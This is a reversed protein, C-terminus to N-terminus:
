QFSNNTQYNPCEILGKPFVSDDSSFWCKKSFRVAQSSGCSQIYLFYLFCQICCESHTEIMLLESSREQNNWKEHLHELLPNWVTCLLSAVWSLLFVILRNSCPQPCFVSVHPPLLISHQLDADQLVGWSEEGLWIKFHSQLKVKVYVNHIFLLEEQIIVCLELKLICGWKNWSIQSCAFIDM